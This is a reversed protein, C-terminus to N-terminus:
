SGRLMQHFTGTLKHPCDSCCVSLFHGATALSVESASHLWVAKAAQVELHRCVAARWSEGLLSAPHFALAAPRLMSWTVCTGPLPQRTCRQRVTPM